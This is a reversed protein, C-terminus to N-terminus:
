CSVACPLCTPVSRKVVTEKCNCKKTVNINKITLTLAHAIRGVAMPSWWHHSNFLPPLHKSHANEVFCGLVSIPTQIDTKDRSQRDTLM